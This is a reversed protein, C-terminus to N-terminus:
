LTAEEDASSVDDRTLIALGHRHHDEGRASPSCFEEEMRTFIKGVGLSALVIAFLARFM